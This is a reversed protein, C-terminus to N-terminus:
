NILNKAHVIPTAIYGNLNFDKYISGLYFADKLENITYKEAHLVGQKIFEEQLNAMRELCKKDTFMFMCHAIEDTITMFQKMCCTSERCIIPMPYCQIFTKVIDQVSANDQEPKFYNGYFRQLVADPKDDYYFWKSNSHTSNMFKIRDENNTIQDFSNYFENDAAIAASMDM